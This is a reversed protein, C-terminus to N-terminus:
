KLEPFGQYGFSEYDLVSKAEMGSRGSGENLRGVSEVGLDFHFFISLHGIAFADHIQHHQGRGLTSIDRHVSLSLISQFGQFSELPQDFPLEPFFLKFRSIIIFVLNM